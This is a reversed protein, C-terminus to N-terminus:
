DRPQTFWAWKIVRYIISMFALLLVLAFSFVGAALIDAGALAFPVFMLLLFLGYGVKEWKPLTLARRIQYLGALFTGVVFAVPGFFIGHLFGLNAEPMLIKPGILGVAFVIGGAALGRAISKGVIARLTGKPTMTTLALDHPRVRIQVSSPIQSRTPDLATEEMQTQESSKVGEQQRGLDRKTRIMYGFVITLAGFIPILALAPIPNIGIFLGGVGLLVFLISGIEMLWLTAMSLSAAQNRYSELLSLSQDTEIFDKTLSQIRFWYALSLTLLALIAPLWGAAGMLDVIIGLIIVLVLSVIM